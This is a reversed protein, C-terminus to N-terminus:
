CCPQLIFLTMNLDGNGKGDGKGQRAVKQNVTETLHGDIDMTVNISSILDTEKKPCDLKWKRLEIVWEAALDIKRRSAQSKPEM